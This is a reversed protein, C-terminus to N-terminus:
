CSLFYWCGSVPLSDESVKVRLNLYDLEYGLGMSEVTRDWMLGDTGFSGIRRNAITISSRESRQRPFPGAAKVRAQCTADLPSARRLTYDGNRRRLGLFRCGDVDEM